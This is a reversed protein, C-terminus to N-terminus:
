TSSRSHHFSNDFYHIYEFVLSMEETWESNLSPLDLKAGLLGERRYDTMKKPNMKWDIKGYISLNDIPRVTVSPRLSVRILPQAYINIPRTIEKPERPEEDILKYTYKYKEKSYDDELELPFEFDKLEDTFIFGNRLYAIAHEAEYFLVKADELLESNRKFRYERKWSELVYFAIAVGSLTAIAVANEIVHKGIAILVDLSMIIIDM